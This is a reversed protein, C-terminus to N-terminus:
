HNKAPKQIKAHIDNVAMLTASGFFKHYETVMEGNVIVPDNAGLCFRKLLLMVDNEM